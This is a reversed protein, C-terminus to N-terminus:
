RKDLYKNSDCSCKGGDPVGNPCSLCASSALWPAAQKCTLCTNYCESCSYYNEFTGAPCTCVGGKPSGM